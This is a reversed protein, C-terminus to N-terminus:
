VLQRLAIEFSTQALRIKSVSVKRTKEMAMLITQSIDSYIAEDTMSV